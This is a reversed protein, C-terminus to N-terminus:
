CTAINSRGRVRKGGFPNGLSYKPTEPTIADARYFRRPTNDCIVIRSADRDEAMGDLAGFVWEAIVRLEGERIKRATYFPTCALGRQESGRRKEDIPGKRPTARTRNIQRRTDAATAFFHVSGLTLTSHLFSAGLSRSPHILATFTSMERNKWQELRQNTVKLTESSKRM